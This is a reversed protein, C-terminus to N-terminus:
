RWTRSPRRSTAWRRAAAARDARRVARPPQRLGADARVAAPGRGATAPRDPRRPDAGRGALLTCMNFTGEDGPLGDPGREPDYRYVLGDAVLGGQTPRRRIADLTTLMRPDDPAMFFVLPMILNSADLADGGYSQVFPRRAERELRQTM